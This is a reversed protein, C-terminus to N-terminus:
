RAAKCTKSATPTTGTGTSGKRVEELCLKKGVFGTAGTIVITKKM